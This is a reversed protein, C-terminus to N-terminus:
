TGQPRVTSTAATLRSTTRFNLCLLKLQGITFIGYSLRVSDIVGIEVGVFRYHHAGSGTKIAPSTNPSFIKAMSNAYAPTIRTGARPLNSDPTDTRIVIWDNCNGKNPLVFNGQFTSGVALSITDGCEARNIAAQLDDMGSLHIPKGKPIVYTTDLYIRPPAVFRKEEAPGTDLKAPSPAIAKSSCSCLLHGSSIIGILISFAAVGLVIKVLAM